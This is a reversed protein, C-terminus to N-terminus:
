EVILKGNMMKYHGPYTCIYDYTGKAPAPITFETTEKPQLLKSAFLVEKRLPVYGTAPGAKLGAIAVSDATGLEVLVFNHVMAADTGKNSFKVKITSGAPVKIEKTSFKMDAMTNGDASLNIEIVKAAPDIKTADYTPEEKMLDSSAPAAPQTNDTKPEPSSCAFLATAFVFALLKNIIKKM